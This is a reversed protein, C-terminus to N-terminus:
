LRAEDVITSVAKAMDPNLKQLYKKDKGNEIYEICHQTASIIVDEEKGFMGMAENCIDKLVDFSLKMNLLGVLFNKLGEFKDINLGKEKLALLIINAMKFASVKDEWKEKYIM